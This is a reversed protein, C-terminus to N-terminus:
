EADIYDIFEEITLMCKGYLGYGVGSAAAIKVNAIDFLSPVKEKAITLEREMITSRPNHNAFIMIVEPKETIEYEVNDHLKCGDILGLKLQQLFTTKADDRIAKIKEGNRLFKDIDEFHKVLGSNGSLAGDGYKLEMLALTINKKEKGDQEIPRVRIGLLDFRSNNKSNAYEIDAIFYDTVKAIAGRNNERAILQQVEREYKHYKSFWIDMVKKIRPIAEIWEDIPKEKKFYEKDDIKESCYKPEFYYKYSDHKEDTTIRLLNGGRYYINIYNERIALYLTDDSKVTELLSNLCGSKLDNIFKKSLGRM